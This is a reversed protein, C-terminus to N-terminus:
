AILALLPLLRSLVACLGWVALSVSAAVTIGALALCGLMMLVAPMRRRM